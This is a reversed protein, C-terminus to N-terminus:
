YMIKKYGGEINLTHYGMSNLKNVVMKSRHGNECYIYYLKSKDLYYGPNNLLLDERINVAKDIHGKDYDYKMRIDIINFDFEKMFGRM